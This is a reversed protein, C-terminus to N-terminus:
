ETMMLHCHLMHDMKVINWKVLSYNNAGVIDLIEPAGGLEPHAKGSIIDWGLFTDVYTEHDAM